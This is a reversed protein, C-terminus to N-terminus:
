DGHASRAKCENCLEGPISVEVYDRAPWKSCDSSFHWTDGGRDKRYLTELGAVTSEIKKDEIRRGSSQSIAEPDGARANSEVCQNCLEELPIDIQEVYEYTPWDPCGPFFHWPYYRGIRKRYKAAVFSNRQVTVKGSPKPKKSHRFHSLTSSLSIVLLLTFVQIRERFVGSCHEM